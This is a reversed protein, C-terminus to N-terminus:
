ICRARHVDLVDDSIAGLTRESEGYWMYRPTSSPRDDGRYYALRKELVDRVADNWKFHLVGAPPGALHVTRGRARAHELSWPYWGTSYYAYLPKRKRSAKRQTSPVLYEADGIEDRTKILGSWRLQKQVLLPSFIAHNGNNTRLSGKMLMVKRTCGRTIRRSAQCQLPFQRFLDFSDSPPDVARLRGGPAARDIMRGTIAVLGFMEAALALDPAPLNRERSSSFWHLEDGDAYMMWHDMPIVSQMTRKLRSKEMPDFEGAWITAERPIGARSLLHQAQEQLKTENMERSNVTVLMRERPVFLSENYHQVLHLFLNRHSEHDLSVFTCLWVPKAEPLAHLSGKTGLSFAAQELQTQVSM